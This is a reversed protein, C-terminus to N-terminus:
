SNFIMVKMDLGQSNQCFEKPLQTAGVQHILYAACALSTADIIDLHYYQPFNMMAKELDEKLWKFNQILCDIREQKGEKMHKSYACPKGKLKTFILEPFSEHINLHPNNLIFENVEKVIPIIHYSQKSLGKNLIMRNIKNAEEYSQASLTQLAPVNFVSSSRGMVLKRIFPEPRQDEISSPCGIPVDILILDTYKNINELSKEVKIILRRDQIVAVMYGQKCGDIGMM